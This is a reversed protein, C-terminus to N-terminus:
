IREARFGEETTTVKLMYEDSATKTKENIGKLLITKNEYDIQYYDSDIREYFEAMEDFNNLIINGYQNSFTEWTFEIATEKDPFYDFGPWIFDYDASDNFYVNLLLNSLEFEGIANLDLIFYEGKYFFLSRIYEGDPMIEDETIYDRLYSNNKYVIENLFSDTDFPLIRDITGYIKGDFSEYPNGVSVDKFYDKPVTTLIFKDDSTVCQISVVLNKDKTTKITAFVVVVGIVVVAAAIVFFIIQKKNM